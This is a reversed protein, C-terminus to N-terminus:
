HADSCPQQSVRRAVAPGKPRPAGGTLTRAHQGAACCSPRQTTSGGGTLTRAHVTQSPMNRMGSGTAVHRISTAPRGCVVAAHVSHTVAAAGTSTTAGRVAQPPVHRELSLLPPHTIRCCAGSYESQQQRQPQQPPVRLPVRRLARPTRDPKPRHAAPCHLKRHGRQPRRSGAHDRSSSRQYYVWGVHRPM